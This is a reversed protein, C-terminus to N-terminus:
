RLMVGLQITRFNLDSRYRRTDGERRLTTRGNRHETMGIDIALASRGVRFPIIVGITRAFSGTWNGGLIQGLNPLLEAPIDDICLDTTDSSDDDCSNHDDSDRHETVDWETSTISAGIAISAYPRVPGRPMTFHPGILFSRINNSVSSDKSVQENTNRDYRSSAYSHAGYIVRRYDMRLVLPFRSSKLIGHAGYGGAKGILSALQGHPEFYLASLGGHLRSQRANTLRPAQAALSAPVILAILVHLARMSNGPSHVSGPSHM